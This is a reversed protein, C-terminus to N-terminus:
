SRISAVLRSGVRDITQLSEKPFISRTLSIFEEAVNSEIGDSTQMLLLGLSLAHHAAFLSGSKRAVQAYRRLFEAREDWAFSEDDSVMCELATDAFHLAEMRRGRASLTEALAMFIETRDSAITTDEDKICQIAREYCWDAVFKDGLQHAALARIRFIAACRFGYNPISSDQHALLFNMRESVAKAQGKALMYEAERLEEELQDARYM